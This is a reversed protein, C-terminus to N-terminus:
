ISSWSNWKLASKDIREVFPNHFISAQTDHIASVFHFFLATIVVCQNTPPWVNVASVIFIGPLLYRCIFPKIYFIIFPYASPENVYSIEICGNIRFYYFAFSLKQFSLAWIACKISNQKKSKLEPWNRICGNAEKLENWKECKIAFDNLITQILKPLRSRHVCIGSKCKMFRFLACQKVCM